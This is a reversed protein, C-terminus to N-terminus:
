GSAPVMGGRATEAANAQQSRCALPFARRYIAYNIAAM